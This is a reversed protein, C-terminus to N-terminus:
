SQSWVTHTNNIFAPTAHAKWIHKKTLTSYKGGRNKDNEQDNNYIGSTPKGFYNKKFLFQSQKSSSVYGMYKLNQLAVLFM